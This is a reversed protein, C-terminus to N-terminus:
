YPVLDSKIKLRKHRSDKVTGKIKSYKRNEVKFTLYGSLPKNFMILTEDFVSLTKAINVGLMKEMEKSFDTTIKENILTLRQAKHWKKSEDSYLEVELTELFIFAPVQTLNSFRIYLHLLYDHTIADNSKFSFPIFIKIQPKSNKLRDFLTWLGTIIGIIGGIIGGIVGIFISYGM